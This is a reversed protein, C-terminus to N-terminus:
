VSKVWAASTVESCKITSMNISLQRPPLARFSHHWAMRIHIWCKWRTWHSLAIFEISSPFKQKMGVVVLMYALRTNEVIGPNRFYEKTKNRLEIICNDHWVQSELSLVPRGGMQLKLKGVVDHKSLNNPWAELTMGFWGTYRAHCVASVSRRLIQMFVEQASCLLNAHPSIRISSFCVGSQYTVIPYSLM